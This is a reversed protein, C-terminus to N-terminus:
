AIKCFALVLVDALYRFQATRSQIWYWWPKPDLAFIDKISLGGEGADASLHETSSVQMNPRQGLEADRDPLM